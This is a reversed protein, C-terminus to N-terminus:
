TICGSINIHDRMYLAQRSGHLYLCMLHAKGNHTLQDLLTWTFASKKHPIDLKWSIPLLSWALLTMLTHM